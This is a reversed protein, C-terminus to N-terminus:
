IHACLGFSHDSIGSDSSTDYQDHHKAEEDGSEDIGAFVVRRQGAPNPDASDLFTSRSMALLAAESM